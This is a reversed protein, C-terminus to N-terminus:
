DDVIEFLTQPEIESIRKAVPFLVILGDRIPAFDEFSATFPLGDVNLFSCTDDNWQKIRHAIDGEFVANGNFDVAVLQALSVPDIEHFYDEDDIIGPKGELPGRHIFDGYVYEGTEISRARFEIIRNM